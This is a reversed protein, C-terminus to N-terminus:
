KEEWLQRAIVDQPDEPKWGSETRYLWHMGQTSGSPQRDRGTLNVVVTDRLPFKGKRVMQVLGALAASASFCPSLGEHEELMLRADRIEQESVAVFTGKSEVVIKLIYPYVKSPDGRLIAKAIGSPREVIDKARIVPSGNNYAQVMPACTEQQVCLLHPLYRIRGLRLLERAGKFVGYVGMASSVGQVYWDIQRPVQEVAELFVLKLGERRGPNFFGRESVFGHRRAFIGAYNFAEVFSADRLAFSVVQNNAEFQVRDLFDEATFLYMKLDPYRRIAHAYASSSNGTSSTCFARVGCEYLFALSIAAMRDKTTGTPLVTEDKLYLWPMGLLNGLRKAHLCPTYSMQQPLLIDAAEIPLLDFFRELPNASNYLVVKELDYEIDIMENCTDCFVTFTHPFLKHCKVCKHRVQIKKGPVTKLKMRMM